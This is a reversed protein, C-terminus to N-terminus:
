ARSEQRILTHVGQALDIDPTTFSFQEGQCFITLYATDPTERQKYKTVSKPGRLFWGGKKRTHRTEEIRGAVIDLSSSCEFIPAVWSQVVENSVNREIIAVKDRSVLAGWRGEGVDALVGSELMEVLDEDAPDIEGNINYSFGM